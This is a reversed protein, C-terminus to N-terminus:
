SWHGLKIRRIDSLLHPFGVSFLSEELLFYLNAPLCVYANLLMVDCAQKVM